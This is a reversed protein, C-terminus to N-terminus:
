IGMPYFIRSIPFNFSHAHLCSNTGAHVMGYFHIRCAPLGRPVSIFLGKGTDLLPSKEVEEEHGLTYYLGDQYDKIAWDPSKM